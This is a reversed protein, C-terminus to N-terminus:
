MTKSFFEAETLRAKKVNCSLCSVVLNSPHNSGGRCFPIRHDTSWGPGLDALCYYCVSNQLEKILFVEYKTYSGPANHKIARHRDQNVCVERVRIERNRGYQRTAYEKYRDINLWRLRKNQQVKLPTRCDKCQGRFQGSADTRIEFNDISAEKAIGCRSCVKLM